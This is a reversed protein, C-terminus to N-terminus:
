VALQHQLAPIKLQMARTRPLACCFALLAAIVPLLALGGLSRQCACVPAPGAAALSLFILYLLPKPNEPLIPPSMLLGLWVNKTSVM